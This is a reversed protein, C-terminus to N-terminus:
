QHTLLAEGRRYTIEERIERTIDISLMTAFFAIVIGASMWVGADPIVSLVNFYTFFAAFGLVGAIMLAFLAVDSAIRTKYNM